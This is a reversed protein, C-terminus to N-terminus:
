ANRGSRKACIASFLLTLALYMLYQPERFTSGHTVLAYLDSFLFYLVM